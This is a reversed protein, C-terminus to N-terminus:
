FLYAPGTGAQKCTHVRPLPCFSVKSMQPPPPPPPQTTRVTLATSCSLTFSVPDNLDPMEEEGGTQTTAIDKDKKMTEVEARAMRGKQVAQIKTAAANLEQLRRWPM